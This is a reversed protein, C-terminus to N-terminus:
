RLLGTAALDDLSTPDIAKGTMGDGRCSVEGFATDLDILGYEVQSISNTGDQENPIATHKEIKVCEADLGDVLLRSSRM